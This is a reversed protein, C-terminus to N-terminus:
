ELELGRTCDPCLLEENRKLGGSIVKTVLCREHYVLNCGLCMTLGGTGNCVECHENWDEEMAKRGETRLVFDEFKEIEGKMERLDFPAFVGRYTYAREGRKQMALGFHPILNTPDKGRRRENVVAQRAPQYSGKCKHGKKGAHCRTCLQSAGGDADVGRLRLGRPTQDQSAANTIEPLAASGDGDGALDELESQEQTHLEM